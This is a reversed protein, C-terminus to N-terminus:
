DVIVVIESRGCTRRRSKTSLHAEVFTREKPGSWKRIVRFYLTSGVFRNKRQTRLHNMNKDFENTICYSLKDRNISTLSSICIRANGEAASARDVVSCSTCLNLETCRKVLRFQHSIRVCLQFRLERIQFFNNKDSPVFRHERHTNHALFCQSGFYPAELVAAITRKWASINSTCGSTPCSFFACLTMDDAGCNGSM